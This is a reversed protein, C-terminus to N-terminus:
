QINLQLNDAFLEGILTGGASIRCTLSTTNEPINTTVTYNGPTNPPIFTVTLTGQNLAIAANGNFNNTIDTTFTATKGYDETKVPYIYDIIM